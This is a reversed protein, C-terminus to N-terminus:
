WLSTSSVKRAIRNVTILLIFNVVSNFLGVAAAFSFRGDILGVRYVYTAIIESVHSNRPNQMLFVQEFGVSMVNGLALILM